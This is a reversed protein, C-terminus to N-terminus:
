SVLTMFALVILTGLLVGSSKLQLTFSPGELAENELFFMEINLMRTILLSLGLCTYSQNSAVNM